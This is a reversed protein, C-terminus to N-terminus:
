PSPSWSAVPLTITASDAALIARNAALKFLTARPAPVEAAITKHSLTTFAEVIAATQELFSPRVGFVHNTQKADEYVAKAAALQEGTLRAYEATPTVNSLAVIDTGLVETLREAEWEDGDFSTEERTEFEYEPLLDIFNNSGLEYTLAARYLKADEIQDLAFYANRLSTDTWRPLTTLGISAMRRADNNREARVVICPKGCECWLEGDIFLLGELAKDQLAISEEMGTMRDLSLRKAYVAFDFMDRQGLQTPQKPWYKEVATNLTELFMSRSQFETVPRAAAFAYIQDGCGMYCPRGALGATTFAVLEDAWRGIRAYTRGNWAIIKEQRTATTGGAAAPQRSRSELVTDTERSSIENVDVTRTMRLWIYQDVVNRPPTGKLLLPMPVDIKM